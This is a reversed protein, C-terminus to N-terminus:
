GVITYGAAAALLGGVLSIALNAISRPSSPGLRLTEVMWTSFTTFGGCFGAAAMTTPSSSSGAGVVLGLVLSGLLNVVLTGVPFDSSSRGQAWGSVLYRCVAGVAGAVSAILMTM